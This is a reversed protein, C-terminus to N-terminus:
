GGVKAVAVVVQTHAVHLGLHHEDATGHEAQL